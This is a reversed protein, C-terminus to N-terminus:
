TRSPSATSSSKAMRRSTSATSSTQWPPSAAAAGALSHPSGEARLDLSFDRLVPAGARLRLHAIRHLRQGAWYSLLSGRAPRPSRNVMWCPFSGTAPRHRAPSARLLRCAFGDPWRHHRRYDSLRPALRRHPQRRPRRPRRVLVRRHAGHHLLGAGPREHGSRLHQDANGIAARQGAPQRHTSGRGSERAFAKVLRVNALVETVSGMTGAM